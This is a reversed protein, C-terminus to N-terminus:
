ANEGPSHFSFHKHGIYSTFVPVAIGALHALEEAHSIVGVAPFVFRALLLSVALTQLVALVNVLIFGLIEAGTRNSKGAKFVCTKCLAFATVMGCIYAVVIAAPYSLHRSLVVRSSFNVLAAFACAAFFLVFQRDFFQEKLRALTV